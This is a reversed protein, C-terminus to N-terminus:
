GRSIRETLLPILQKKRSVVDKLYYVEGTDGAEAARPFGLSMEFKIDRSLFLISSLMTIDTVLLAAFSLKNEKRSEDLEKLFEDKRALAERTGDVEIQSVTYSIDSTKYEKMDQGILEKATRGRIHSGAKLIEKGLTEIDLSTIDCLHQAADRDIDTTTASQLVLTDSLIGCLLLSAIDKPIAIRAERYLTTIITATSGIPKNIFTIPYATSLNGLRHHDIIEQIRYHELGDVAQSAENHDVLIVEINAERLLSHESIIGTVKKDNDVVPLCRCPSEQLLPRIKSVTDDARVPPVDMDAMVSVPTSYAILMSTSSTGYPSIVVSVGYSAAKERLAKGFNYGSTIILLRVRAEIAAEQVEARDSVIAVINESKHAELTRKYTDVGAAGVLVCAKFVDDERNIIIPQANLTKTILAITTPFSTKHEPNMVALVNQAFASYHLLSMYRGDSDVVPMCPVSEEEMRAIAEWVSVNEEVTKCESLYYSAKPILDPVHVPWKVGFRNFVYETQPALHGARAAVCDNRGQAKMLEAFAVASVCSDTDPNKHGIVYTTKKIM